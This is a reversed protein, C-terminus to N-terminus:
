VFTIIAILGLLGLAEPWTFFFIFAQDIRMRGMSARLLTIAVMAFLTTKGMMVVLGLIGDPGNPIFLVIGLVLVVLRQMAQMLQLYALPPGSYEILPGELIETEAEAIDFPGVGLTAPLCALYTLLAPWMLPELLLPGNAKQYAVIESLSFVAFSGTSQGVFVAVSTLAFLLPGEYALILSMERSFGLSGYVSGSSSGALMIVIGPVALLYLLVLLDGGISLPNWGPIPLLCVALVMSAVGILPVGLFLPEHADNPILIQKRLLKSVDYFPQVLPPGQRAQLRAILKRDVGKLFLSFAIGFFSAALVSATAESPFYGSM